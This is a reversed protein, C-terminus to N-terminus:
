MEKVVLGKVEALIHADLKGSGIETFFPSRMVVERM